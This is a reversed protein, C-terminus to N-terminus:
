EKESRLERLERATIFQRMALYSKRRETMDGGTYYVKTLLFDRLCSNVLRVRKGAAVEDNWGNSGRWGAIFSISECFFEITDEDLRTARVMMRTEAVNLDPHREYVSFLFEQTEPTLGLDHQNISQFLTDTRSNRLVSNSDVIGNELAIREACDYKAL